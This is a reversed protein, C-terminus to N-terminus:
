LLNIKVGYYTLKKVADQLLYSFGRIDEDSMSVVLRCVHYNGFIPVILAYSSQVSAEKNTNTNSFNQVSIM